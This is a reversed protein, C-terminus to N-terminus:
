EEDGDVERLELTQRLMGYATADREVREAIVYFRKNTWTFRGGSATLRLVNHLTATVGPLTVRAGKTANLVRYRAEAVRAAAAETAVWVNIRSIDLGGGGSPSPPYLVTFSPLPVSTASVLAPPAPTVAVARVPRDDGDLLEIPGLCSTRDITALSADATPKAPQLRVATLTSHRDCFGAWAGNPLAAALSGMASGRPMNFAFVEDDGADDWDQWWERVVNVIETAPYRESGIRVHIHYRLVHHLLIGVTLRPLWHLGWTLFWPFSERPTAVSTVGFAAALSDNILGFDSCDVGRQAFFAEATAIELTTQENVASDTASVGVVFGSFVEGEFLVGDYTNEHYACIMQGRRFTEPAPGHIVVTGRYGGWGSGTMAGSLGVLEANAIPVDPPTGLHPREVVRVYLRRKGEIGNSDTVTLEVRAIGLTDFEITCSSSSGGSVISAGDVDWDYGSVGSRADYTSMRGHGNMTTLATAPPPIWNEYSDGGDFVREQGLWAMLLPGGGSGAFTTIRATPPLKDHDDPPTGGTRCDEDHCEPTCHPGTVIFLQGHGQRPRDLVM